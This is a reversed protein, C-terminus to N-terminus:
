VTEILEGTETYREMRAKYESDEYESFCVWYGEDASFVDEVVKSLGSEVFLETTQYDRIMQMQVDSHVEGSLVGDGHDVAGTPLPQNSYPNRDTSVTCGCLFISLLLLISLFYKM